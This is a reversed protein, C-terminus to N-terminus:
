AEVVPHEGVGASGACASRILMVRMRTILPLITKPKAREAIALPMSAVAKELRYYSNGRAEQISSICPPGIYIRM